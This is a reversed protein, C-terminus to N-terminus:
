KLSLQPHDHVATGLHYIQEFMCRHPQLEIM